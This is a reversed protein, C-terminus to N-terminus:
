TRCRRNASIVAYLFGGLMALAVPGPEPIAHLAFMQSSDWHQVSVSLELAPDGLLNGFLQDTTTTVLVSSILSFGNDNLGGLWTDFASASQEPTYGATFTFVNNAGNIAVNIAGDGTATGGLFTLESKGTDNNTKGVKTGEKGDSGGTTWWWEDIECSKATNSVEIKISGNNPLDAGGPPTGGYLNWARDNVSWKGTFGNGNITVTGTKFVVHLDNVAEGTANTFKIERTSSAYASLCSLCLVAAFAFLCARKAPRIQRCLRRYLKM